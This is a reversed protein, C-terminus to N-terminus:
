SDDKAAMKLLKLVQPSCLGEIEAITMGEKLMRVAIRAQKKPAGFREFVGPTLIGYRQLALTWIANFRVSGEYTQVDNNREAGDVGPITHAKNLISQADERSSVLKMDHQLIHLM